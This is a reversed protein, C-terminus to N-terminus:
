WWLSASFQGWHRQQASYVLFDSCHKGNSYLHAIKKMKVWEKVNFLRQSETGKLSKSLTQPKTALDPEVSLNEECNM